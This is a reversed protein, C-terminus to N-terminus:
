STCRAFAALGLHRLIIVSELSITLAVAEQLKHAAVAVKAIPM